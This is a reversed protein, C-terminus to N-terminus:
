KEVGKLIIDAISEAIDELARKGKPDYWTYIWATIGSISFILLQPDVDARVEGAAQAREIVHFLVSEQEDHLQRINAYEKGSLFRFEQYFVAVHLHHRGLAIVARTIISRLQEVPTLSTDAMVERAGAVMEVAYEAHIEQLVHEKSVFHHYFAGKTLQAGETIAQVTTAHFGRQSFLRLATDLIAKRTAEPTYSGRKRSAQVQRVM